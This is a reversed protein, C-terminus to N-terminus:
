KRLRGLKLIVANRSTTLSTKNKNSLLYTHRGLHESEQILMSEVIDISENGQLQLTKSLYEAFEEKEVFVIKADSIRYEYLEESEVQKKTTDLIIEASLITLDSLVRNSMVTSYISEVIFLLDLVNKISSFAIHENLFVNENKSLQYSKIFLEALQAYDLQKLGVAKVVTDTITLTDFSLFESIFTVLDSLSMLEANNKGIAFTILEFLLISDVSHKGFIMILTEAINESDYLMQMFDTQLYQIDTLTVSEVNRKSVDAIKTTDILPVTEIFISLYTKTIYDILEEQSTYTKNYSVVRSFLDVLQLSELLERNICTSFSMTKFISLLETKTLDYAVLFADLISITETLSQTKLNELYILEFDSLVDSFPKNTIKSIEELLTISEIFKLLVSIDRSESITLQEIVSRNTNIIDTFIDLLTVSSSLNLSHTISYYEILAISSAITKAFGFIDNKSFFLSESFAKSFDLSEILSGYASGGYANFGYQM